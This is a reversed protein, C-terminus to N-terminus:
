RSTFVAPEALRELLWGALKDGVAQSGGSNM